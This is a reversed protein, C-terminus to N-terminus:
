RFGKPRQYGKIEAEHARRCHYPDFWMVKDIIPRFIRGALRGQQELRYAGASMTEDPSSSGLTIISFALQDACILVNIIRNLVGHGAVSLWRLATNIM